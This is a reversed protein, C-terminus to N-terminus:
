EQDLADITHLRVPRVGEVRLVSAIRKRSLLVEEVDVHKVARGEAVQDLMTEAGVVVVARVAHGPDDWQHILSAEDHIVLVVMSALAIELHMSRVIAQVAMLRWGYPVALVHSVTLVPLLADMMEIKAAM